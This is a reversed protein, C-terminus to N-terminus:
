GVTFLNASSKPINNGLLLIENLSNVSLFLQSPDVPLFGSDPSTSKAYVDSLKKILPFGSVLPHSSSSFSNLVRYSFNFFADRTAVTSCIWIM